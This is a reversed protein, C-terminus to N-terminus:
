PLRSLWYRIPHDEDMYRFFFSGMHADVQSSILQLVLTEASSLVFLIGALIFLFRSYRGVM